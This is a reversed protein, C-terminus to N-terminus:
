LSIVREEEGARLIGNEYLIQQCTKLPIRTKPNPDLMSLLIEDFTTSWPLKVKNEKVFRYCIKPDSFNLNPFPKVKYLLYFLVIGLQWANSTYSIHNCMEPAM